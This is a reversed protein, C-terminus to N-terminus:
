GHEVGLIEGVLAKIAEPRFPKRLFAAIGREKLGGIREENGETSIVVIPVDRLSEDGKLIEIMELGGMVPMNLDAFILDPKRERAMELGEKGNGAERLSALSIGSLSLSKAIVAKVTRSDDVMLIDYAKSM